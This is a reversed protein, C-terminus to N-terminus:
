VKSGSGKHHRCAPPTRATFAKAIDPRRRLVRNSMTGLVLIGICRSGAVTIIARMSDAQVLLNITRPWLPELNDLDYETTSVFCVLLCAIM